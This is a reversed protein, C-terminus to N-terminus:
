LVEDGEPGGGLFSVIPSYRAVLPWVIEFMQDRTIPYANEVQAKSWHGISSHIPLAVQSDFSWLIEHQESLKLRLFLSIKNFWDFREFLDFVIEQCLKKFIIVWSAQAKRFETVPISFKPFDRETKIGGFIQINFFQLIRAEKQLPLTTEVKM